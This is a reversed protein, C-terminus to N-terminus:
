AAHTDDITVVPVTYGAPVVGNLASVREPRDSEAKAPVPAIQCPDIIDTWRMHDVWATCCGCTPTKYVALENSSRAVPACAAVALASAALASLAVGRLLDITRM